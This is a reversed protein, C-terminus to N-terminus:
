LTTKVEWPAPSIKGTREMERIREMDADNADMIIQFLRRFEPDDQLFDLSSFYARDFRWRVKEEVILRQLGILTEDRQQLLAHLRWRNWHCVEYTAGDVSDSTNSDCLEETFVLSRQLLRQAQDTKAARILLWGYRIVREYTKENIVPDKMGTLVPYREEFRQLARDPNGTEIDRLLLVSFWDRNRPLREIARDAYAFAKEKEGLFWFVSYANIWVELSRPNLEIAHELWALAEERADLQAYINAVFAATHGHQFLAYAKRMNLMARGGHGDEIEWFALYIYAEAFDPELEICVQMEQRAEEKRGLAWLTNALEEHAAHRNPDRLIVRRWLEVAYELDQGSQTLAFAYRALTQLHEPDIDLARKFALIAIDYNGKTIEWRGALSIVAPSNGDIREASELAQKQWAELQELRKGEPTNFTLSFHIANALAVHAALYDPDLEIAKRFRAIATDFGKVDFKKWAIRAGDLFADYAQQNDTGAFQKESVTALGLSQLVDNAIDTSLKRAQTPDWELRKVWRPKGSGVDLLTMEVYTTGDLVLTHGTLLTLVNYRRGFVLPDPPPKKQIVQNAQSANLGETLSAYLTEAIDIERPTADADLFPLVAVSNPLPDYGPVVPADKIRPLILWALVATAVIGILIAGAVTKQQGRSSDLERNGDPGVQIVWALVVTIPFGVMFVIALVRLSWPPAGTQELLFGAIETALWAIAIYTGAVPLVRRRRLETFIGGTNSDSTSRTKKM